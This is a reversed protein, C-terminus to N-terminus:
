GLGPQHSLWRDARNDRARRLQVMDQAIDSGGIPYQSRLIQGLHVCEQNSRQLCSQKQRPCPNLDCWSQMRVSDRRLVFGHGRRQAIWTWAISHPYIASDFTFRLALTEMGGIDGRSGGNRSGSDHYRFFISCSWTLNASFPRSPIIRSSTHFMM